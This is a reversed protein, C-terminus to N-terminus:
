ANDRIPETEQATFRLRQVNFGRAAAQTCLTTLQEETYTPTRGLLWLCSGSINSVLAHSYEDDVYLVLYATSLFRMWPLFSVQLTGEDDRSALARARHVKGQEDTGYNTIRIDGDELAEYHAHVYDLGYEFPTEFRAWEYWKGLYAEWCIGQMPVVDVTDATKDWNRRERFYYRIARAIM